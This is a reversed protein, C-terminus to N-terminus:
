PIEIRRISTYSGKRIVECDYEEEFWRIVEKFGIMSRVPNPINFEEIVYDLVEYEESFFMLNGNDFEKGLQDLSTTQDDKLVQDVLEKIIINQDMEFKLNTM